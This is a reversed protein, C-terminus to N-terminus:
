GIVRVERPMDSMSEVGTETIVMNDEIRVGGEGLIYIGPEVTYCMGPELIQMNDGRMYPEEHGEMGIGHGTRHRFLPGYGAKTIVDRAAIDVNACPVGPKGAARGAANAEQVIKHINLFKADVDGVAFTRTLDSIYGEYAAGWDVLFLDGYQVKRDTPSAHPNATNPGGSVIPAFPMEPQSGNRLLQIVLENSFEMETMGVKFSKLAAELGDQAIKVAQRMKAIEDADKRLRLEALPLSADPFSSKPAAQEIFRYELIRLARPEVGIAKGNLGLADVGKQFAAPWDVPNEPYTIVTMAYPLNATKASELEPLVIVPDKGPAYLVVTPREMLHFHLGTLYTLTQGPNIVVADLNSKELSQALKAFRANSM